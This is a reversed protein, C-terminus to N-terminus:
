SAKLHKDSCSAWDQKIEIKSYKCLVILDNGIIM